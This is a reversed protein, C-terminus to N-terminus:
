KEKEKKEQRERKERQEDEWIERTSLMMCFGGLPGGCANRCYEKLVPCWM